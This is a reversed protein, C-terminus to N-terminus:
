KPYLMNLPLGFAFLLASPHVELYKLYIHESVEIHTDNISRIVNIKVQLENFLRSTIFVTVIHHMINM